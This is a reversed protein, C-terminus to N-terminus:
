HTAYEFIFTYSRTCRAATCGAPAGRWAPLLLTRSLTHLLRRTNIKRLSCRWGALAKPTKFFPNLFYYKRQAAADNRSNYSRAAPPATKCLLCLNAHLLNWSNEKCVFQARRTYTYVFGAGCRASFVVRGTHTQAWARQTHTCTHPARVLFTRKFKHWWWWCVSLFHQFTFICWGRLSLSHDNDWRRCQAAYTFNCSPWRYRVHSLTLNDCTECLLFFTELGTILQVNKPQFIYARSSFICQSLRSYTEWKQYAWPINQLFTFRKFFLTGM